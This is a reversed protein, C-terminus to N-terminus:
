KNRAGSLQLFTLRDNISDALQVIEHKTNFVDICILKYVISKRQHFTSDNIGFVIFGHLLKGHSLKGDKLYIMKKEFGDIMLFDFKWNNIQDVAYLRPIKEFGEGFDIELQYDLIHIPRTGSNSITPYVFYTTFNFNKNDFSSQLGHWAALIRGEIKPRESYVKYSFLLWGVVGFTISAIVDIM